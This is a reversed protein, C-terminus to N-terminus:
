RHSGYRIFIETLILESVTQAKEDPIAYAEPWNTLWDVFSVIYQNGRPTEGYPGSLDMSVKELSFNPIDTEILPALKHRKSQTQCVRCSGVYATVDAYLKPWHYRRGILEQTKNISMHGMKEHCQELIETRLTKPVFMRMRPEEETGSLYYLIDEYILYKQAKGAQVKKKRLALIEEDRQGSEIVERWHPDSLTVFEETQDEELSFPRNGLTHANLVNVQYARDDVGPSLHISEAELQEPTRSLLDACTNDKGALYEIKCNYGSLKLAWQQIKKNTWEAELLYKLLKHDTKITFIAGYVEKEIVLWRQQTESLCHSLFYVPVEQPINPVPGDKEPCPQTLVAGVCKDGVDTYLIMPRGLDPYALLPIATLQEKRCDFARRCDETWKFRAYKKTLAIMPGMLRSFVPIFRRYYGIAGIFGRVERVNKPEPMARIVEVKDLDPKIGRKNIIFGLYKTEEKMLQCQPLKIKLNHERLRDMVQQLHALHEEPTKSFVLVDNLYAM